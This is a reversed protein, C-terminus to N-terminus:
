KAERKAVDFGLGDINRLMNTGEELVVAQFAVAGILRFHVQAEVLAGGEEAAGVMSSGRDNGAIDFDTFQKFTNVTVIFFEPHRAVFRRPRDYVLFEDGGPNGPPGIPRPLHVSDRGFGGVGKPGHLRNHSGLNGAEVSGITGTDRRDRDLGLGGGV